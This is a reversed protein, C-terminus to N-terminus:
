STSPGPIPAAAVNVSILANRRRYRRPCCLQGPSNSTLTVNVGGPLLWQGLSFFVQQQSETRHVCYRPRYGSERIIVNAVISVDQAPTFFGVTDGRELYIEQRPPHFQTTALVPTAITVPSTIIGKSTDSV